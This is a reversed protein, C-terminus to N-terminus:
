LLWSIPRDPDPQYACFYGTSIATALQRGLAPHEHRIKELISRINKSVVGRAREASSSAIRARGGPGSSGTLQQGVLEIEIRLSEARGLDNMQEAEDLDCHLDRLRARYESRAKADILPGASGIDRVISLDESEAHNATRGNAASGDVAEILDLVHIREGPRALLYAVYHLGKADKLRFPGDGFTITWFEGERRLAATM